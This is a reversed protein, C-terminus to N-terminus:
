PAPSNRSVNFSAPISALTLVGGALLAPPRKVLSAKPISRSLSVTVQGFLATVGIRRLRLPSPVASKPVAQASHGRAACHVVDFDPRFTVILRWSRSSALARAAM